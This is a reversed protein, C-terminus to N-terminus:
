EMYNVSKKKCVTSIHGKQFCKKCTADRFKCMYRKHGEKGCSYCVYSTSSQSNAANQPTEKQPVSRKMTNVASPQVSEAFLKSERTAAEDAAAVTLCQEFTRDESLLKTQTNHDRIGCVFQDRLARPLFNGFNCTSALRRLKASYTAVSEGSVQFSRHFKFSEAVEIKKPSYHGKLIDTIQQFTKTNPKDPKCLDSLVSYCKLGICSIFSSVKKRDAVAKVGATADDAVVGIDNSFFFEELRELYSNFSESSNDFEGISGIHTAM